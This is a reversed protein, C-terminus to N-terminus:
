NNKPFFIDIWRVGDIFNIASNKYVAYNKLQVDKINKCDSCFEKCKEYDNWYNKPKIQKENPYFLDIWKVSDIENLLSYKYITSESNEAFDHKNKHKLSEEFCKSYDNWYGYPKTSYFLDIWKIGDIENLLSYKYAVSNGNRFEIKSKYKLSEEFCVDYNNWYYPPKQTKYKGELNKGIENWMGKQRSYKFLEPFKEKFESVSSVTKVAEILEEKQYKTKTAGVSGTKAINLINWNNDAYENKYQEELKKAETVPIYDTLKNIKAPIHNTKKIHKSVTGTNLHAHFREDTDHTLGVYVSNDPFDISYICRFYKDGLIPFHSKTQEYWITGNPEKSYRLM